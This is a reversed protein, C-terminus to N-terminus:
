DKLFSDPWRGEAPACVGLGLRVLAASGIGLSAMVLASQDVELWAALPGFAAALGFGFTLLAVAVLVARSVYILVGRASATNEVRLDGAIQRLSIVDLGRLAVLGLLTATLVAFGYDGVVAPGAARAILATALFAALANAGKIAYAALTPSALRSLIV